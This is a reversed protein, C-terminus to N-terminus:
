DAGLYGKVLCRLIEATEDATLIGTNLVMDYVTLDALDVEYYRRFRELEIAERSATEREVEEPDRGEREAIRRVREGLPATLYIRLDPRDAMWASLTADIVVGGKMSEAKTRDDLYRDFADDEASIKTMEELSVGLEKSRDRFLTGASVYRLKFVEALRTAQTTRGSGHPGAVAIVPARGPVRSRM